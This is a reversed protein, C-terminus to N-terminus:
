RRSDHVQDRPSKQFTSSTGHNATVSKHLKWLLSSLWDSFCLCRLSCILDWLLFSGTGLAPFCVHCISTPNSKAHMQNTLFTARTNYCFRLLLFGFYNRIVKSVWNFVARYWYCKRQSNEDPLDKRQNESTSSLALKPQLIRAGASWPM